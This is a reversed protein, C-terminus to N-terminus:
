GGQWPPRVERPLMKVKKTREHDARELARTHQGYFADIAAGVYIIAKDTALFPTPHGLIIPANECGRTEVVVFDAAVYSRGVGSM